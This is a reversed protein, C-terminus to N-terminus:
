IEKHHSCEEDERQEKSKRTIFLTVLIALSIGGFLLTFTDM